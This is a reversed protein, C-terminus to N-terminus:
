RGGEQGLMLKPATTLGLDSLSKRLLVDVMYSFSREQAEALAKIAAVVDPCATTNMPVKKVDCRRPLTLRDGMRIKDGIM